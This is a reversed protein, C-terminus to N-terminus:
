PAANETSALEALREAVVAADPLAKRGKTFSHPSQPRSHEACRTPGVELDALQVADQEAALTCTWDELV